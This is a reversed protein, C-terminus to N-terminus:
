LLLLIVNESRWDKLYKKFYIRTRLDQVLEKIDSDDIHKLCFLDIRKEEFRGILHRLHWQM